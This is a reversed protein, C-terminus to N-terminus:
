LISIDDRLAALTINEVVLVDGAGFDFVVHAGSQRAQALATDASTVGEFGRFVLTDVNDQFDRVRDSDYNLQFVFRDSGAGGFLHDNGARG